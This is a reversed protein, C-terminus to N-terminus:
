FTTDSEQLIRMYEPRSHSLAKRLYNGCVTYRASYFSYVAILSKNMFLWKEVLYYIEELQLSAFYFVFVAVIDNM